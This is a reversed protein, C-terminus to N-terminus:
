RHRLAFLLELSNRDEGPLDIKCDELWYRRMLLTSALLDIPLRRERKKISTTSIHDMRTRTPPLGVSLWLRRIYQHATNPRSGCFLHEPTYVTSTRDAHQSM